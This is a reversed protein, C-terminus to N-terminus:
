GRLRVIVSYKAVDDYKDRDESKLSFIEAVPYKETYKDEATGILIFFDELGLSLLKGVQGSSIEYLGVLRQENDRDGRCKIKEIVDDEKHLKEFAIFESQSMVSFNKLKNKREEDM